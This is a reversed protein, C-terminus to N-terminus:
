TEPFSSSQCQGLERPFGSWTINREKRRGFTVQRGPRPFVGVLNGQAKKYRM